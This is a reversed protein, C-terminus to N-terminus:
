MVNVMEKVVKECGVINWLCNKVDNMYVFFFGGRGVMDKNFDYKLFYDFFYIDVMNGFLEVNGVEFGCKGVYEGYVVGFIGLERDVVKGRDVYVFNGFIYFFVEM